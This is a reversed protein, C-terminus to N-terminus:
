DWVYREDWALEHKELFGRFEDQFTCVRYHEAQRSLYNKV